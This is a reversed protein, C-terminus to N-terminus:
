VLGERYIPYVKDLKSYQNKYVESNERYYNENNAYGTKDKKYSFSDKYNRDYLM